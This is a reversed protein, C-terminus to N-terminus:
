LTGYQWSAGFFASSFPRKWHWNAPALGLTKTPPIATPCGPVIGKPNFAGKLGAPDHGAFGLPGMVSPECSTSIACFGPAPPAPESLPFAPVGGGAVGAGAGAGAGAGPFDVVDGTEVGGVAGM